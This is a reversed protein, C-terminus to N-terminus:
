QIEMANAARRVVFDTFDTSFQRLEKEAVDRDQKGPGPQELMVVFVLPGKKTEWWGAHVRTMPDTGLSGGKFYQTGLKPDSQKYLVEYLATMTPEDIGKLKKAALKQYLAALSEATAENDGPKTRDRLMYRRVEVPKFAADRKHIATTLAEPGGLVATTLNAAANYVNNSVNTKGIMVEGVRRVSATSLDRRIEDRVEPEFHSIAIHDDKLIEAAGPLPSDLKSRYKDFLEVLFFAKVSSAVPRIERSKYEYWPQNASGLWVSAEIGKGHRKLHSELDRTFAETDIRVTPTVSEPPKEASAVSTFLTFVAFGCLWLNQHM